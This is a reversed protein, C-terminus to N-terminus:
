DSTREFETIRGDTEFGARQYLSLAEEDEAHVQVLVRRMTLRKALALAHTLLAEGAVMSSGNAGGPGSADAIRLDMVRAFDGVQYLTIAGAPSKDILAVFADYHPDDLREEAIELRAERNPADIRELDAQVISRFAARMARAPLVRVDQPAERDPWETLGMAHYERRVFGRETLLKGVAESGSGTAPAWRRLTVNREAFFREAEEVAREADADSEVIVERFQNLAAASPFRPSYYAIGFKLTEKECLQVCYAQTARLISDVTPTADM